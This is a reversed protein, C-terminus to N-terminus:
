LHIIDDSFAEQSVPLGRTAAVNVIYLNGFRYCASADSSV